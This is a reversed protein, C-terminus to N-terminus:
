RMYLWTMYSGFAVGFCVASRRQNLYHCLESLERLVINREVMLLLKGFWTRENERLEEEYPLPTSEKTKTNPTNPHVDPHVDMDVAPNFTPPEEVITHLDRSIKTKTNVPTTLTTLSTVKTDSTNENDSDSLIEGDVAPLEVERADQTDSTTAEVETVLAPQVVVAPQLVETTLASQVVVPPQIVETVLAPQVSDPSFPASKLNSNTENSDALKATNEKEIPFRTKTRKKSRKTSMLSIRKNKEFLVKIEKHMM